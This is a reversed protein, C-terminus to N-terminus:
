RIGTPTGVPIDMYIIDSTYTHEYSSLTDKVSQYVEDTFADLFQQLASSDIDDRVSDELTNLTKTLYPDSEYILKIPKNHASDEFFGDIAISFRLIAEGNPIQMPRFMYRSEYTYLREGTKWENIVRAINTQVKNNM